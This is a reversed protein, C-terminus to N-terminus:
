ELEKISWYKKIHLLYSIVMTSRRYRPFMVRETTVQAVREYCYTAIFKHYKGTDDNLNGVSIYHLIAEILQLWPFFVPNQVSSNM